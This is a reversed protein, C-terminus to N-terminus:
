EVPENTKPIQKPKKYEKDYGNQREMRDIKRILYEEYARLCRIIGWAIGIIGLTVSVLNGLNALIGMLYVTLGLINLIKITEAMKFRNYRGNGRVAHGSYKFPYKGGNNGYRYSSRLDNQVNSGMRTYNIDM